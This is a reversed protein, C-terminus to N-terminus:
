WRKKNETFAIATMATKTMFTDYKNKVRKVEPVEKLRVIYSEYNKHRRKEEFGVSLNDDSNSKVEDGEKSLNDPTSVESLNLTRM